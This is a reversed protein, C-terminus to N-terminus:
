CILFAEKEQKTERDRLSDPLSGSPFPIRASLWHIMEQLLYWMQSLAWPSYNSGRGWTLEDKVNKKKQALTFSFDTYSLVQLPDLAIQVTNMMESHPIATNTSQSLQRWVRRSTGKTLLHSYHALRAQSQQCTINTFPRLPWHSFSALISETGVVQLFSSLYLWYTIQGWLGAQRRHTNINTSGKRHHAFCFKQKRNQLVTALPKVM